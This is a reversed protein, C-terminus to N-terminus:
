PCLLRALLLRCDAPNCLAPCSEFSKVVALYSVDIPSYSTRAAGNPPQLAQAKPIKPRLWTAQFWFFRPPARRLCHVPHLLFLILRPTLGSRTGAQPPVPCWPPARPQTQRGLGEILSPRGLHPLALRQRKKRIRTFSYPGGAGQRVDELLTLPLARAREAM